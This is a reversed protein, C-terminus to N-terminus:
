VSKMAKDYFQRAKIRQIKTTGVEVFDWPTHEEWTWGDLLHAVDLGADAAVERWRGDSLFTTSHKAREIYGSAERGARQIMADHEHLDRGKLASFLLMWKEDNWKKRAWDRLGTARRIAFENYGMWERELPTHPVAQLHTLTVDLRTGHGSMVAHCMEQFEDYDQDTEGPLGIIVYWKITVGQLQRMVEVIKDYKLPKGIAKRLRDSLGEIGFSFRKVTGGKGMHNQAKDLRADLGSNKCGLSEAFRDLDTVYSVSSYDPAFLNVKVRGRKAAEELQTQLASKSAERYTGGAWGIPCFACKSQCGRAVEITPSKEGEDGPYLLRPEHREMEWRRFRYEGAAHIEPVYYGIMESCALMIAEKSMGQDIMRAISSGTLEGDGLAIIDAFHAIPEPAFSTQGGFVVLPASDDRDRSRMPLGMSRFAMPLYLWQRTYITSIFWADPRDLDSAKATTEVGTAFLELQVGIKEKAADQKETLIRIARIDHGESKLNEALIKAGM